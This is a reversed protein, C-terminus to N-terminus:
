HDAARNGGRDGTTGALRWHRVHLRTERATAVGLQRSPLMEFHPDHATGPAGSSRGDRFRGAPM